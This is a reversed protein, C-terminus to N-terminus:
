VRVHKSYDEEIHKATAKRVQQGNRGVQQMSKNTMWLLKGEDKGLMNVEHKKQLTDDQHIGWLEIYGEEEM